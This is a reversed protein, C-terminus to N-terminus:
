DYYTNISNVIDTFTSLVSNTFDDLECRQSTYELIYNMLKILYHKIKFGVLWRKREERSIKFLEKTFSSNIISIVNTYCDDLVKMTENTDGKSITTAIININNCVESNVNKGFKLIIGQVGEFSLSFTVRDLLIQSHKVVGTIIESVDNAIVFNNESVINFNANHMIKCIKWLSQYGDMLVKGYLQLMPQTLKRVVVCTLCEHLMLGLSLHQRKNAIRLISNNFEPYVKDVSKSLNKLLLSIYDFNESIIVVVNCLSEVISCIIDVSTTPKNLEKSFVEFEKTCLVITNYSLSSIDHDFLSCYCLSVIALVENTFENQNNSAYLIFEEEVDKLLIQIKELLREPNQESFNQFVHNDETYFTTYIKKWLGESRTAEIIQELLTFVSMLKSYTMHINECSFHLLTAQLRIFSRVFFSDRPKSLEILSQKLRRLSRLGFNVSCSVEGEVVLNSAGKTKFKSYFSQIDHFEDVSFTTVVEDSPNELQNRAYQELSKHTIEASISVHQFGRCVSDCLFLRYQQKIKKRMDDKKGKSLRGYLAVVHQIESEFSVFEGFVLFDNMWEWCSALFIEQYYAYLKERELFELIKSFGKLFTSNTSSKSLLVLCRQATKVSDIFTNDFLRSIHRKSNILIVIKQNVRNAVDPDPSNFDPMLLKLEQTISHSADFPNLVKKQNLLKISITSIEPIVLQSYAVYFNFSFIVSDAMAVLNNRNIENPDSYVTMFLEGFMHLPSLSKNFCEKKFLSETAFAIPIIQFMCKQAETYKNEYIIRTFKSYAPYCLYYCYLSMCIEFLEKLKHMEIKIHKLLYYKKAKKFAEDLVPSKVIITFATICSLVIEIVEFLEQSLYYLYGFNELSLECIQQTQRIVLIANIIDCFRTFYIKCNLYPQNFVSFLIGNYQYSSNNEMVLNLVNVLPFENSLKKCESMFSDNNNNCYHHYLLIKVDIRLLKDVCNNILQKKDSLLKLVEEDTKPFQEEFYFLLKYLIEVVDFLQSFEKNNETQFSSTVCIKISSTLVDIVKQLTIGTTQLTLKHLKKITGYMVAWNTSPHLIDDINKKLTSVCNDRTIGDVKVLNVIKMVDLFEFVSVYCLWPIHGKVFLNRRLFCHLYMLGCRCGIQNFVDILQAIIVRKEFYPSFTWRDERKLELIDQVKDFATQTERLSEVSVEKISSTTMWSLTVLIFKQIIKNAHILEMEFENDDAIICVYYFHHYMRFINSAVEYRTYGLDHYRSYTQFIVFDYYKLLPLSESSIYTPIEDLKVPIQITSLFSHLTESFTKLIVFSNSIKYELLLFPVLSNRKSSTSCGRKLQLLREDFQLYQDFISLLTKPFSNMETQVDPNDLFNFFNYKQYLQELQEICKSFLETHGPYFLNAIDFVVKSQSLITQLYFEIFLICDNKNHNVVQRILYAQDIILIIIQYIYEQYIEKPKECDFICTKINSEVINNAYTQRFTLNGFDFSSLSQLLSHLDKCALLMQQKNPNEISYLQLNFCESRKSIKIRFLVVRKLEEITAHMEPILSKDYPTSNIFNYIKKILAVFPKNHYSKDDDVFSSIIFIVDKVYKKNLKFNMSINFIIDDLEDIILSYVFYYFCIARVLSKIDSEFCKMFDFYKENFKSRSCDSIWKSIDNHRKNFIQQLHKIWASFTNTEPTIAVFVDIMATLCQMYSLLCKSERKCSSHIMPNSKLQVTLSKSSEIAKVSVHALFFFSPKTNNLLITVREQIYKSLLVEEENKLNQLSEIVEYKIGIFEIFEDVDEM